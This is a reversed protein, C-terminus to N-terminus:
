RAEVMCEVKDVVRILDPLGVGEVTSREGNFHIHALREFNPYLEICSSVNSLVVPTIRSCVVLHPVFSRVEFDLDQPEIAAVEADPKLIQLTAALVERYSRPENALLIRLKGV